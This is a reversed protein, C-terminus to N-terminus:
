QTREVLLLMSPRSRARALRRRTRLLRWYRKAAVTGPRPGRRRVILMQMACTVHLPAVAGTTWDQGVHWTQEWCWVCMEPLELDYGTIV